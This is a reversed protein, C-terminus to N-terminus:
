TQRLHTRILGILAMQIHKALNGATEQASQAADTLAQNPDFLLRAGTRQAEAVANGIEGQSIAFLTDQIDKFARVLAGTIYHSGPWLKHAEFLTQAIKSLHHSLEAESLSRGDKFQLLMEVTLHNVRAEALAAYLGGLAAMDSLLDISAMPAHYRVLDFTTLPVDQNLDVVAILPQYRVNRGDVPIVGLAPYAERFGAGRLIAVALIYPEMVHDLMTLNAGSAPDSVGRKPETLIVGATSLADPVQFDYDLRFQYPYNQVRPFRTEMELDVVSVGPAIDTMAQPRIDIIREIIAYLNDRSVGKLVVDTFRAVAGSIDAYPGKDPELSNIRLAALAPVLQQHVIDGGNDRVPGESSPVAHLLGRAGHPRQGLGMVYGSTGCETLGSATLVRGFNIRQVTTPTAM